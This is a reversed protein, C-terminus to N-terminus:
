AAGRHALAPVPGACLADARARDSRLGLLRDYAAAFDPEDDYIELPTGGNALVCTLIDRLSQEDALACEAEYRGDELRQTMWGAVAVPEPCTYRVLRGRTGALTLFEASSASRLLRGHDLVAVQEAVRAVFSFDHTAVVLTKGAERLIRAYGAFQEIASSDLGVTPEDFLVVDADILLPGMLCLKQRMGKSYTRVEDRMAHDLGLEGALVRAARADYPRGHRALYLALNEEATMRFYLNQDGELAFVVRRRLRRNKNADAGDFLVRGSTPALTGGLLRLLTTKGSGNPGLLVLAAGHRISLTLGDLAYRPPRAPFRVVVDDLEIV